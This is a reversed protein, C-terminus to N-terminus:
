RHKITELDDIMNLNHRKAFEMALYDASADNLQEPSHADEGFVCKANYKSVLSFFDDTPYLWRREYGIYKRGNRIGGVNVELPVDYAMCCEIMDRSVKKCDSDFNEISQLFFDPHAFISFLGSSIAQIALDRYAYVQGANTINSFYTVLTKTKYNMQDHNGLIIYDLVRSSLLEKYFPFYEPFSEAEIGLYIDIQDRYKAQLKRISEVYGSFESYEGRVYPESYGPLMAHDSFGLKTCGKGIAELVYEEDEGTAHGCRKTHTHYNCTFM